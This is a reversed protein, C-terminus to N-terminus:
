PMGGWFRCYTQLMRQIIKDHKDTEVRAWRPLATPQPRLDRTRNGITDNSKKMKMIREAASHGQPRGVELVFSYLRDIRTASLRVLKMHRLM